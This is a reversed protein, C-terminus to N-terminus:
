KLEKSNNNHAFLEKIMFDAGIYLDRYDINNNNEDKTNGILKAAHSQDVHIFKSPNRILEKINMSKKPHCCSSGM